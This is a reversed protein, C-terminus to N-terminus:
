SPCHTLPKFDLVLPCHDSYAKWKPFKEITVQIGAVWDKPLFVCDVHYPAKEMYRFYLAHEREKGHPEGRAAHYASVLGFDKEMRSVFASHNPEHEDDWIRNSNLDGAVIVDGARLFDAHADVAAHAEEIYGPKQTWLALLGLPTPGDIRLCISFKGNGAGAQRTLKYDGFGFVGLGKTQNVGEWEFAPKPDISIARLFESRSPNACEPIIAVDPRLSVLPQLKKHLAQHCNWVILRM